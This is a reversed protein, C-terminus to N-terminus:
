YRQLDDEANRDFATRRLFRGEADAIWFQHGIISGFIPPREVVDLEMLFVKLGRRIAQQLASFFDGSAQCWDSALYLRSFFVLMTASQQLDNLAKSTCASHEVWRPSQQRRSFSVDLLKKLDSIAASVWRQADEDEPAYSVFIDYACGPILAQPSAEVPRIQTASSPSPTRSTMQNILM